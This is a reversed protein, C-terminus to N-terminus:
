GCIKYIVDNGDWAPDITIDAIPPHGPRQGSDNHGASQRTNKDSVINSNQVQGIGSDEPKEDTAHKEVDGKM